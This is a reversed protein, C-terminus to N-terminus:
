TGYEGSGLYAEIVEKNEKIEQPSGEAIRSGYSVVIIRECFGMVAKMDHEVLLVTVGTDRIKKIRTMMTFTEDPNMGTVPEDLLLLEPKTALAIAIGLARQHGHPLNKALEDKLPVLGVVELIEMARHHLEEERHRTTPPNFLAGWFGIQCHLSQAMLVNQLTSYNTFLNTLQFTRVVGRQVVQDPRLNTIDEGKFVVKGSTPPLIGTILNFVTTKRAGNPGILGVFDGKNVAFDLNNVAVLGGFNKTLGKLELLPHM